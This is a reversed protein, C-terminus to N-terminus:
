WIINTAVPINFRWPTSFIYLPRRSWLLTLIDHQLWSISPASILLACACARENFVLSVIDRLWKHHDTTSECPLQTITATPPPQRVPGPPASPESWDPFRCPIRPIQHHNPFPSPLSLLVASENYHRYPTASVPSMLSNCNEERSLSVGTPEPLTLLIAAMSIASRVLDLSSM